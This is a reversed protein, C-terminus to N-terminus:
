AEQGLSKRAVREAIAYARATTENYPVEIGKLNARVTGDAMIFKVKRGCVVDFKEEKEM